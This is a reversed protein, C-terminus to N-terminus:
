KVERREYGKNNRVMYAIIDGKGICKLSGNIIVKLYTHTYEAINCITEQGKHLIVVKHKQLIPTHQNQPINSM